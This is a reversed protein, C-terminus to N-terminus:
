GVGSPVKKKYKELKKKAFRILEKAIEVDYACQEIVKEQAKEMSSWFLEARDEAIKLGIKKDEIM